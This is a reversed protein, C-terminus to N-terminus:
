PQFRYGMGPETLLYRPRSPEAELKRRLQAMYIRLYSSETHDPDGRLASLLEDSAVLAGPNNLLMELMRWETPTLHITKTPSAAEVGDDDIRQILHASLDVRVNGMTISTPRPVLKARRAAARLRAILESMDFPKTVYDIAGLDLALVKDHSGSRASLVVIPLTPDDERLKQIVELGDRDPLGLDLLLLDPTREAALALATAADGATGVEFGSNTLSLVLSRLLSPEDDVILVRTM